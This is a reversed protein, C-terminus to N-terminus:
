INFKHEYNIKIKLLMLKINKKIKITEGYIYKKLLEWDMLFPM